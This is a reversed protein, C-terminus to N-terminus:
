FVCKIFYTTSFNKKKLQQFIKTEFRDHVNCLRTNKCMCTEGPYILKIKFLYHNFLHSSGKGLLSHTRAVAEAIDRRQCSSKLEPCHSLASYLELAKGYEGEYYYLDARLFCYWYVATDSFLEFGAWLNQLSSDLDKWSSLVQLSFFQIKEDFIWCIMHYRFGKIKIFVKHFVRM